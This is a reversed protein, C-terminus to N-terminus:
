DFAILATPAQAIHPSVSWTLAQGQAHPLPGEDTNNALIRGDTVITFSGEPLVVRGGEGAEGMAALQALGAVGTPMGQMPSGNRESGFAPADVRLQNDDRLVVTVFANATPLREVTPFSFDHSLHGSIQFDVDFVGDGLYVVKDWGRQRELRAAFEQAAQPNSPDIGGLLLKMEEIEKKRKTAREEAGANWEAQQEAAEEETCDRNEHTEDDTCSPAFAEVKGMEALKGLALMQIEGDYSYAFSGDKMLALESTFKGPSLLCGTLMLASAGALAAGRVATFHRM